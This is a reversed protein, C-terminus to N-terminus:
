NIISDIEKRYPVKGKITLIKPSDKGNYHVSITKNFRGPYKADYIVKIEGKKNPQLPEKPYEPVTCGCDTEVDSIILSNDGTNSFNFIATVEKEASIENFDFLETKFSIMAGKEELKKCSICIFVFFILVIIAKKSIKM